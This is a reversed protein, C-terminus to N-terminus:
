FEVPKGSIGFFMRFGKSVVGIKLDQKPSDKEETPVSEERAVIEVTAFQEETKWWLNQTGVVLQFLLVPGFLLIYIM